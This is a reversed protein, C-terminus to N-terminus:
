RMWLKDDADNGAIRIKVEHSRRLDLCGFANPMVVSMKLRKQQLRTM